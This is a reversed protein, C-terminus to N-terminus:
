TENEKADNEDKESTVGCSDGDVYVLKGVQLIDQSAHFHMPLNPRSRMPSLLEVKNGMKRHDDVARDLEANIAEDSVSEPVTHM